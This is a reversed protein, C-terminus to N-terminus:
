TTEFDPQNQPSAKVFEPLQTLKQYLEVLEPVSELNVKLRISTALQPILFCDAATATKGFCFEGRHPAILKTFSQLGSVIWKEIWAAKQEETIKLDKTLYSLVKLNQLPQIDANIIECAQIVLAEQVREKPFLLPEHKIHDLYRFIAMSQGIAQGGHILTPVTKGPNIQAYDESHQEGGNKLLHVTKLDYALGKINLAIRVRYSASSRFYSYLTLRPSQGM